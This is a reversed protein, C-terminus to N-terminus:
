KSYSSVKKALEVQGKYLVTTKAESVNIFSLVYLLELIKIKLYDIKDDENITYIESFIHEILSNKRIIACKQNNCLRNYVNIPKINDNNLFDSFHSAAIDINIFITLGHYHNLPFIYNRDIDKRKSISLDGPMLYFFDNEYEQEIRGEMCHHIELYNGDIYPIDLKFEDIHISNYSVFIGPFVNYLKIRADGIENKYEYDNKISM